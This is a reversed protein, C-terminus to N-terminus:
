RRGKLRLYDGILIAVPYLVDEEAQIHYIFRDALTACEPRAEEVAAKRLARLLAILASHEALLQPIQQKLRDTQPVVEAMEPTHRGAVLLHLLGLPQFAFADEKEMHPRLKAAVARAADGVRGEELAITSLQAHLEEHELRLAEPARVEM